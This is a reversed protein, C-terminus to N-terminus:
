SCAQVWMCFSGPATSAWWYWGNTSTEQPQLFASPSGPSWQSPYCYQRTYQYEWMGRKRRHRRSGEQSSRHSTRPHPHESCSLVLGVSRDVPLFEVKHFSVKVSFQSCHLVSIPFLRLVVKCFVVAPSCSWVSFGVLVQKGWDPRGASGSKHETWNFTKVQLKQVLFFWFMKELRTLCTIEFWCSCYVCYCKM